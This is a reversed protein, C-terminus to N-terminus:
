QRVALFVCCCIMPPLQWLYKQRSLLNPTVFMNKDRCVFNSRSLLKTAVLKTKDHCVYKDHCFVDKTAVFTHKDYPLNQRSLYKDRSFNHRSLFFQQPLCVKTAVFCTNTAVISKNRCFTYKHCSGGIFAVYAVSWPFRRNYDQLLLQALIETRVVEESKKYSNMKSLSVSSMEPTYLHAASDRSRVTPWVVCSDDTLRLTQM